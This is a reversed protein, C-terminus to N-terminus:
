DTMGGEGLMIGNKFKVTEWGLQPGNYQKIYWVGRKQFVGEGAIAHAYCIANLRSKTTSTQWGGDFLQVFNEGITAIHNGYLYVRSVNDVDTKVETNGNRWNLADAIADNMQREIIRM